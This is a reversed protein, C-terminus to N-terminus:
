MVVIERTNKEIYEDSFLRGQIWSADAIGIRSYTEPSHKNPQLLLFCSESLMLVGICFQGSEGLFGESKPVIDLRAFPVCTWNPADKRWRDEEDTSHDDSYEADESISSTEPSARQSNLCSYYSPHLINLSQTKVHGKWLDHHTFNELQDNDRDIEQLVFYFTGPGEEAHWEPFEDLYIPLWLGCLRLIGGSVQGFANHSECDVRAELIKARYKDYGVRNHTPTDHDLIIGGDISAWSWSPARYKGPRSPSINACSCLHWCLGELLKSKWLGALYQDGPLLTSFMSAIGSIASLKDSAYTLKRESYFHILEDWSDFIRKDVGEMANEGCDTKPELLQDKEENNSNDVPSPRVLSKFESQHDFPEHLWEVATHCLCEWVLGSSTFHLTRPPLCSEQFTWGRTTLASVPRRKWFDLTKPHSERIALSGEWDLQESKLSLPLPQFCPLRKQLIGKKSNEANMASITLVSNMYYERMHSAEKPWDEDLSDQIICIADIWIYQINLNRTVLIADRFTAPLENMSM